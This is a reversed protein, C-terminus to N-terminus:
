FAFNRIDAYDAFANFLNFQNLFLYLYIGLTIAFM